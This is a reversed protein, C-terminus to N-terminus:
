EKIVKIISNKYLDDDIYEEELLQEKKVENVAKGYVKTKKKAHSLYWEYEIDIHGIDVAQYGSKALDYALITATPGLAILILTDKSIKNAEKIIEDYCNYANKAPAIIRKVEKANNLLDNGIGIKTYEGEIICIKKNDWIKKIDAFKDGVKNKNVFDIYPRTISANGYIKNIDLYKKWEKRNTYLHSMWFLKAKLNYNDLSKMPLPLGIIIDKNDSTIVEKLKNGLDRSNEQFFNSPIDEMIRFEGDGFRCLSKKDVIISKILEEDSIITLDKFYNKKSYYWVIGCLMNKIKHLM